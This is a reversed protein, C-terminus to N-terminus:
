LKPPRTGLGDFGKAYVAASPSSTHDQRGSAPTLNAFPLKRPRRHCFLGTAPSLVFYATFGNRLSHRIAEASGTHEHANKQASKACSVAPAARVRYERRGRIQPCPFKQCVEPSTARSITFSHKGIVRQKFNSDRGDDDALPDASLAAPIRVWREVDNRPASAVFCDMGEKRGSPNSRLRECLRPSNSFNFRLVFV